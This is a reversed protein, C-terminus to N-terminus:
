SEIRSESSLDIELGIPDDEKKKVREYPEPPKIVM